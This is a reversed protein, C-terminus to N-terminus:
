AAPNAAVEIGGVDTMLTVAHVTQKTMVHRRFHQQEPQELENGTGRRHIQQEGAAMDRGGAADIQRRQVLGSQQRQGRAEGGDRDAQIARLDAQVRAPQQDVGGDGSYQGEEGHQRDAAAAPMSM